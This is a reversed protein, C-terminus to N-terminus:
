KKEWHRNQQTDEFIRLMILREETDLSQNRRKMVREMTEFAKEAKYTRFGGAGGWSFSPVFNRPFGEGFLNCSVGVVTGTNLSTNIATKSHDGMILGCFQQGTAVFRQDPYSWLRVDTYDNKLNSTNTDAGLNTWAGLYSHGLFGDHAKNAYELLVSEVIEGGAKCWRGITTGGYIKAGMRVTAHDGIAVPGRLMAGEMVKAQAGIYIPGETANLYAGSIEAGEEVFIQDKAKAFNSGPLEVFNREKQLLEIDQRIAEGNLRYLDTLQNIKLFPTGELEIGKLAEFADDKMLRELQRADLRAVILEDNQLFAENYDMQKVLTVLEPSPLVSGNIFFNDDDYDIGYKGALYDHTIFSATANLHKEWKERIRLIGVRLECNPRTFTLPLLKERVDNDFLIINPM